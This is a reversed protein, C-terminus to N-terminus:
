RIEKQLSLFFLIYIHDVKRIFNKGGYNNGGENTHRIGFCYVCFISGEGLSFLM